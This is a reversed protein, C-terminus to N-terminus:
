GGVVAQLPVTHEALGSDAPFRVHLVAALVGKREPALVHVRIRFVRGPEREEVEASFADAGEIQVQPSPLTIEERGARVDLNRLGKGGAGLVGFRLPGDPLFEVSGVSRGVALFDLYPKGLSTVGEVAARLQREKGGPDWTVKVWRTVGEGEPDPVVRGLIKVELGEPVQNWQLLEFPRLSHVKLIRSVKRGPDVRGFQLHDPELRFVPRIKLLLRLGQPLNVANGSVFVGTLKRSGQIQMTDVLATIEGHFGPPIPKGIEWDKGEVRLGPTTCHCMPKLKSIVVPHEGAVEFPFSAPIKEGKLHTGLDIRTVDFILRSGSVAPLPEARAVVGAVLIKKEVIRNEGDKHFSLRLHLQGSVPGEPLGAPLTLRIRYNRGAELPLAEVTAGPIGELSAQPPDLSGQRAGLDLTTQVEVGPELRGLPLTRAPRVWVDGGVEFEVYFVLSLGNDAPIKVPLRHIGEESDAPITLDLVQERARGASPAGTLELPAPLMVPALLRFPEPGGVVIKQVRDEGERILGLRLPGPPDLQFWPQIDAQLTLTAPLGPGSGHVEVTSKKPGLFGASLFKVRLVGRTGPDLTAPPTVSRGGVEMTPVTCGCSPTWGTLIVEDRGAAFPFEVEREEGATIQGLDISPSSFLGAPATGDGCCALLALVAATPLFRWPQRGM